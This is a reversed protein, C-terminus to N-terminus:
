AYTSAIWTLKLTEASAGSVKYVKATFQTETVSYINAIYASASPSMAVAAIVKPVTTQPVPFTVTVTTTAGVTAPGTFEYQGSFAGANDATNALNAFHTELPAINDSSTPYTIGKKTTAM